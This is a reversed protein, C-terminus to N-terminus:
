GGQRARSQHGGAPPGSSAEREGFRGLLDSEHIYCSEELPPLLIDQAWVATPVTPMAVGAWEMIPDFVVDVAELLKQPAGPEVNETSVVM